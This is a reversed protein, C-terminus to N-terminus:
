AGFNQLHGDIINAHRRAGRNGGGGITYIRARPTTALAQELRVASGTPMTPEGSYEHSEPAHRADDVAEDHLAQPPPAYYDRGETDLRFYLPTQPDTSRASDVATDSDVATATAERTSAEGRGHKHVLTKIKRLFRKRTGTSESRVGAGTDIKQNERTCTQLPATQPETPWMKSTIRITRHQDWMTDLEAPSHIEELRPSSCLPWPALLPDADNDSDPTAM